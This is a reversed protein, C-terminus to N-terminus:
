AHVKYEHGHSGSLRFVGAICPFKEFAELALKAALTKGASSKGKFMKAREKHPLAMIRHIYISTLAKMMMEKDTWFYASQDHIWYLRGASSVGSHNCFLNFYDEILVKDKHNLIFAMRYGNFQYRM